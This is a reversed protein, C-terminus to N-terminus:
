DANCTQRAEGHEASEALQQRIEALLGDFTFRVKHLITKVGLQRLRALQSTDSVGTVGIVPLERYRPLSRLAEMFAVGNMRPMLVDLLVLDAGQSDLLAMAEAGDAASAVEFGEMRLLRLLPERIIQADEVIIIRPM